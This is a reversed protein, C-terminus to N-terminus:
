SSRDNKVKEKKKKDKIVRSLFYIGIGLSLATLFAYTTVDGMIEETIIALVMLLALIIFAFGLVIDGNIKEM